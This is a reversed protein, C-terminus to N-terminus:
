DPKSESATRRSHLSSNVANILYSDLHPEVTRLDLIVQDEEIRGIIPPDCRRLAPLLAVADCNRHCLAVAYSKLRAKPATGGGIVSEVELVTASVELNDIGAAVEECRQRIREAPEHLMRMIPIQEPM